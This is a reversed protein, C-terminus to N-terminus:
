EENKVPIVYYIIKKTKVKNNKETCRKYHPNEDFYKISKNDVVEFHTDDYFIPGVEVTRGGSEKYRVTMGNIDTVPGVYKFFVSM